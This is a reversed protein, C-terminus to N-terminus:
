LKPTFLEPLAEANEILDLRLTTNTANTQDWGQLIWSRAQHQLSAPHLILSRLIADAGNYTIKLKQRARIAARLIPLHGMGRAANAFPHEIQKWDAAPDSGALPLGADIKAALSTAASKLDPDTTELVIALAIQLAEVEPDTLTLPPLLTAQGLQYGAGRTGAVPVGSSQLRGIDRYLTRLSVAQATALDEARHLRHDGLTELLRFLRDSRNM